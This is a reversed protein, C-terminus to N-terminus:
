GGHVPYPANGAARLALLAPRDIKGRPTRPISDVIVVSRPVKHEALRLRCWAIVDEYRLGGSPCAVVARVIEDRGDPSAVGIVVAEEVESHAVLVREVESPDVKRGRVNIVDDIRGRLELEGDRWSALDRTEFRGQGLRPDSRPVYTLGVVASEVTVIGEGEDAGELPTLSLRVGEVPTGVTGREAATGERDYSIGGCESSGYFVHVPQRYTKRFQTATAASLVAGASLVLRIGPPWAPPQSMQLLAKLYAPVTPFVTAGFARAAELPALPGQDAPLVLTLGRVIASLALTVLGYSHSMPIAALLRDDDRFGMTAFLAAEDALHNESRMAVGRPLGTSGSTLMVTAVEARPVVGAAWPASVGSRTLRFAATSVPWSERCELLAGAGLAEITRRRDEPPTLADLFLVTRGARRLALFGALFGPGNPAQFAILEERGIESAEVEEAIWGALRDVDAFTASGFPSLVIADSERAGVLRAFADVIGDGSGAAGSM